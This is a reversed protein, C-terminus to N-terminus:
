VGASVLRVAWTQHCPLSCVALFEYVCVQSSQGAWPIPWPCVVLSPLPCLQRLGCSVYM